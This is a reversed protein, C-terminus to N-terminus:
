PDGGEAVKERWIAEEQLQKISIFAFIPMENSLLTYNLSPPLFCLGPVERLHQYLSTVLLLAWKSVTELNRFLPGYSLPLMLSLLPLSLCKGQPM